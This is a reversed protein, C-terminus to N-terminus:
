SIKGCHTEMEKGIECSEKVLKPIEFGVKHTQKHYSRHVATLVCKQKRLVYSIWGALAPYNDIGQAIVNEALELPYWPKVDVMGEWTKTGNKWFACVKVGKTM